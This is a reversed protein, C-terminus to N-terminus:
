PAHSGERRLRGTLQDIGVTRDTIVRGDPLATIEIPRIGLATTSDLPARVPITATVHVPRGSRLARERTTTVLSLLREEDTEASSRHTSGLTLGVVTAMTAMIALVVILEVLTM